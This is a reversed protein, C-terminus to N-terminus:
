RCGLTLTREVIIVYGIVAFLSDDRNGENDTKELGDINRYKGPLALLFDVRAQCETFLIAPHPNPMQRLSINATLRKLIM